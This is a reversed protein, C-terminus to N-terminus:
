ERAPVGQSLILSCCRTTRSRCSCRMPPGRTPDPRHPPVTDGPEMLINGSGLHIRYTRLDGRVMLWRDPLSAAIRSVGAGRPDAPISMGVPGKRVAQLPADSYFAGTPTSATPREAKAGAIRGTAIRERGLRVSWSCTLTACASGLVRDLPSTRGALRARRRRNRIFRVQDTTCHTVESRAPEVPWIADHRFQARLGHSRSSAKAIGVDGGDFPGLFNTGLAPGAHARAGALLAPHAGRVPKYPQGHKRRRPSGTCRASRRSSPTRIQTRLAGSALLRRGDGGCRDPALAPHARGRRRSRRAM